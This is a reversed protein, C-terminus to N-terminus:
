LRGGEEGTLPEGKKHGFKVFESLWLSKSHCGCQENKAENLM